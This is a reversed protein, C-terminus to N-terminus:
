KIAETTVEFKMGRNRKMFIRMVVMRKPLVVAIGDDRYVLGRLEIHGHLNFQKDGADGLVRSGVYEDSVYATHKSDKGPVLGQAKNFAQRIKTIDSKVWRKTLGAIYNM